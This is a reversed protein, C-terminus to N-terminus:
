RSAAGVPQHRRTQCVKRIPTETRPPRRSTPPWRRASARGGVPGVDAPRLVVADEIQDEAVVAEAPEVPLSDPLTPPPRTAPLMHPGVPTVRRKLASNPLMIDHSSGPARTMPATRSTTVMRARRVSRSRAPAGARPRSAPRADAEDDAQGLPDDVGVVRHGQRRREARQDADAGHAQPLAPRAPDPADAQGGAQGGRHDPAVDEEPARRVPERRQTGEHDHDAREAHTAIRARGAAAAVDRLQGDHQHGREAETGRQGRREERGHGGRGRRVAPRDRRHRRGRRAARHGPPPPNGAATAPPTGPREPVGRRRRRRSGRHRRRSGRHRHHGRHAPRSGRCRHRYRVRAPKGPRRRNARRRANPPPAPARRRRRPPPNKFELVDLGASFLASCASAPLYVQAAAM